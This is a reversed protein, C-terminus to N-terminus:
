QRVEHGDALRDALAASIPHGTAQEIYLFQGAPNIELFVYEGEPTLLLDIAGYVLDLREMMTLLRSKLEDPLEHAAYRTDPNMRIDQKYAAAQMDTIGAFIRSGVIIVRIEAAARVQRQFLVPAHSVLHLKAEDPKDLRRTERWTDPLAVFQKHIVEGPHAECFLRAQGPDNTILTPPIRLGFEQALTLQYSKHGAFVDRDPKNIWFASLSQYLGQFVTTAESIAFRRAAPDAIAPDLTFPQPRRWWIASVSSLDLEDGERRRLRFRPGGDGYAMSLGLRVPFEALDLLQVPIGREALAAMVPQAHVDRMASIILVTM